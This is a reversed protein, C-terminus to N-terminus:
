PFTATVALNVNQASATANTNGADVNEQAYAANAASRFYGAELVVQAQYPPPNNPTADTYGYARVLVIGNSDAAFNGDGDDDDAFEYRYYVNNMGAMPVAALAPAPNLLLNNWGAGVVQQIMVGRGAELGAEAAILLQKHLADNTAVKTGTRTETLAAIGLVSLSILLLLTTVLSAGRERLSPTPDTTQM